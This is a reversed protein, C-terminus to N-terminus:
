CRRKILKELNELFIIQNYTFGRKLISEAGITLPRRELKLRLVYNENGDMLEGALHQLDKQTAGLREYLENGSSQIQKRVDILERQGDRRAVSLRGDKKLQKYYACSLPNEFRQCPEGNMCVPSDYFCTPEKNM